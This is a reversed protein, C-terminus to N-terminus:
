GARGPPQRRGLRLDSRRAESAARSATATSSRRELRAIADQIEFLAVPEPSGLLWRLRPHDEVACADSAWSTLIEKKDHVSLHPDKVVDDPHQFGVALRNLRSLADSLSRFPPKLQPTTALM